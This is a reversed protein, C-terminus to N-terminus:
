KQIAGGCSAWRAARRSDKGVVQGQDQQMEDMGGGVGARKDEHDM